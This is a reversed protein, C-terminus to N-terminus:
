RKTGILISNNLTKVTKEGTDTDIVFDAGTLNNDSLHIVWSGTASGNVATPDTMDALNADVYTTAAIDKLGYFAQQPYSSDYEDYDGTGVYVWFEDSGIGKAVRPHAIIPRASSGPLTMSAYNTPKFLMDTAEVLPTRRVHAGIRERAAEVDALTVALPTLDAVTTM